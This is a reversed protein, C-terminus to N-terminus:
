SSLWSCMSATRRSFLFKAPWDSGDVDSVQVRTM